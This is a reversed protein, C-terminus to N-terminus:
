GIAEIRANLYAQFRDDHVRRAIPDPALDNSLPRCSLGAAQAAAGAAAVEQEAVVCVRVDGLQDTLRQQWWPSASV